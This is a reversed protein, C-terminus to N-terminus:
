RLCLQDMGTAIVTLKGVAALAVGVAVVAGFATHLQKLLGGSRAKGAVIVCEAAAAAAATDVTDVTDVIDVSDGQVLAAVKVLPASSGVLARCTM